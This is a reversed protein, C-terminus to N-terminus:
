VTAVRARGDRNMEGGAERLRAAGDGSEEHKETHMNTQKKNVNVNTWVLRKTEIINM